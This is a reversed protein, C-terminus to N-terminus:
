ETLIMRKTDVEKGDALLTYMYMGAIFEGGSITVSTNGRENITISKKQAGQMDYVYLTASTVEEPILM